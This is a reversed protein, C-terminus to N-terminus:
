KIKLIVATNAPMEFVTELNKPFGIELGSGLVDRATYATNGDLGMQAAVTPSIALKISEQKHNFSALVLLKDEGAYRVYAVYRDSFNQQSVNHGTIDIYAGTAVAPNNKSFNLLEAYYARLQKQEQSLAGGDFKGGNVWKQHEPVGWYDMKTTVGEKEINQFGANGIAPEGVEQGFYIMIPGEDITASVVMAPLAKWADGAFYKSALRQEDHNEMFHLMKGRLPKLSEQVQGIDSGKRHGEMFYRLTDYLQVKDYLFDFGNSSAYNQYQNPNYIEAIFIVSPNVAKVQPIAWNWFEVPVMEAMDCRFGDVGKNTWYILIDRMKNWTAPPPNFHITRNNQIDVGYNLKIAEFWDFQGANPTFQDNGTVKAPNEVYPKNVGAFGLSMVRQIHERPPQFATGPLYYFNNNVAFAQRPDDGEGLDQVGAPKADSQYQRAVHNPVFDIIAKMGQNHTRELLAEFEQMRNKVDVALDPAVDYYDKISYPSGARGKVVFPHDASIGNEPYATLTAHELIGTYWIHTTGLAKIGLLAADNIDNFKGCGNETITGWPKNTANTNGFLRTMMQYIVLKSSQQPTIMASDPMRDKQQCAVLYLILLLSAYISFRKM